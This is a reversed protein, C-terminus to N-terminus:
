SQLWISGPTPKPTDDVSTRSPTRALSIVRIRECGAEALRHACAATTAGTTIVDDILCAARPARRCRFVDRARAFRETRGLSSQPPGARSKCTLAHSLRAGSASAAWKALTYPLDLVRTALRKKATPVPVITWGGSYLQGYLWAQVEWKLTRVPWHRTGFKVSQIVEAIPGDFQWLSDYAETQPPLIACLCREFRDSGCRLCSAPQWAHTDSRCLGCLSRGNVACGPCREPFLIHSFNNM